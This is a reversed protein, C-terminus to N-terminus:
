AETRLEGGGRVTGIGFRLLVFGWFENRQFQFDPAAFHTTSTAAIVGFQVQNQANIVYNVSVRASFRNEPRQSVFVDVDDPGPNPTTTGVGVEPPRPELTAPITFDGLLGVSWDPPLNLTLGYALQARPELRERLRDFYGTVGLGVNGVITHSARARLQGDFALFGTPFGEWETEVDCDPDGLRPPASGDSMIVGGNGCSRKQSILFGLDATMWVQTDLQRRWRARTDARLFRTGTSYRVVGPNTIVGVSDIRTAGYLHEIQMDYTGQGSARGVAEQAEASPGTLQSVLATPGFTLTHRRAVLARASIAGVLGFIQTTALLPVDAQQEGLALSTSSYDLEGASISVSTAVFWRRTPTIAHSLYVRHLVRLPQRGPPTPLRIQLRPSYGMGLLGGNLIRFRGDAAPSILNLFSPQAGQNAGGSVPAVGGRVEIGVGASVDAQVPATALLWGCPALASLWAMM